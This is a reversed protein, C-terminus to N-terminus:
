IELFHRLLPFARPFRELLSFVLSHYAVKNKPMTVELTGWDSEEEYIDKAKAKITYTGRENWTHRVKLEVGSLCPGVWEEFTDDGWDIYYFLDDGEPDTAVFTYEYETGAKGKAQGDIIPIGPPDNDRGYTKFCMDWTVNNEKFSRCKAPNFWTDINVPQASASENSWTDGGDLSMWACGNPYSESDNNAGWAYFNDTANETYSAIYYTQGTTIMVEDFDFTVWGFDETVVDEPDVTTALIDEGTLETRVALVYPYTATSNKGIYLEIRTLIEKTPIFSQAVQIYIPTEPLPVQGVPIAANETMVTQSQDVEDGLFASAGLGSLVFLGVVLLPLIRKM